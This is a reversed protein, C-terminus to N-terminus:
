KKSHKVLFDILRKLNPQMSLDNWEVTHERDGDQVTVKYTFYDAAGKKTKSSAEQLSESSLHFFQCKEFLDQLENTENPSLTNTDVTTSAIM